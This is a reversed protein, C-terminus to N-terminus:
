FSTLDNTRGTVVEFINLPRFALCPCRSCRHKQLGLSLCSCLLQVFFIIIPRQQAGNNKTEVLNMTLSWSGRKDRTNKACFWINQDRQTQFQSILGRDLFIEFKQGMVIQRKVRVRNTQWCNILWYFKSYLLVKKMDQPKEVLKLVALFTSLLLFTSWSCGIHHQQSVPPHSFYLNQINLQCNQPRWKQSWAKLVWYETLASM